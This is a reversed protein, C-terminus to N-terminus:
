EQTKKRIGVGFVGHQVVPMLEVGRSVFEAKKDSKLSKTVLSNKHLM